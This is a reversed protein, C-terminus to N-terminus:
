VTDTFVVGCIPPEKTFRYGSFIATSIRAIKIATTPTNGTMDPFMNLFPAGTTTATNRIILPALAKRHRIDSTTSLAVANMKTSSELITGACTM